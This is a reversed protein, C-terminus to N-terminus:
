ARRTLGYRFWAGARPLSFRMPIRLERLRARPALEAATAHALPTLELRVVFLPPTGIAKLSKEGRTPKAAVPAAVAQAALAPAIVAVAPRATSM